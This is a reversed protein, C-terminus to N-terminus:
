KEIPEPCNQSCDVQIPQTCPPQLCDPEPIPSPPPCPTPQCAPNGGKQKCKIIQPLGGKLTKGSYRYGKRLRGKNGGTQIIGRHKRVKKGGVFDKVIRLPDAIKSHKQVETIVKRAIKGEKVITCYLLWYHLVTNSGSSSYKIFGLFIHEKEQLSLANFEDPSKNGGKRWRLPFKEGTTKKLSNAYLQNLTTEYNDGFTEVGLSHFREKRSGLNYGKDPIINDDYNYIYNNANNRFASSTISQEKETKYIGISSFLDEWIKDLPASVLTNGGTQHIGRHKRVKKRGKQPTYLHLEKSVEDLQKKMNICNKLVKRSLESIDNQKPSLNNINLVKDLNSCTKSIDLKNEM